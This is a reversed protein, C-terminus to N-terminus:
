QLEVTLYIRCQASESQQKYKISLNECNKRLIVYDALKM